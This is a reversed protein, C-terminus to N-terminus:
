RYFAFGIIFAVTLCLAVLVYPLFNSYYDQLTTPMGTVDVTMPSTESVSLQIPPLTTQDWAVEKVNVIEAELKKELTVKNELM